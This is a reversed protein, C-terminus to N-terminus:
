KTLLLGHQWGLAIDVVTEASLGGDSRPLLLEEDIIFVSGGVPTWLERM